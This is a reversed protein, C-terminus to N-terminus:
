AQILRLLKYKSLKHINDSVHYRYSNLTSTPPRRIDKGRSCAAAKQLSMSFCSPYWAQIMPITSFPFRDALIMSLGRTISTGAFSLSPSSHHHNFANACLLTGAWCRLTEHNFLQKQLRLSQLPWFNKCRFKSECTTASLDCSETGTDSLVIANKGLRILKGYM